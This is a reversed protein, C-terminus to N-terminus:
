INKLSKNQVCFKESDRVAAFNLSLIASEPGGKLILPALNDMGEFQSEFSCPCLNHVANCQLNNRIESLKASFGKALLKCNPFNASGLSEGPVWIEDMDLINFSHMCNLLNYLTCNVMYM